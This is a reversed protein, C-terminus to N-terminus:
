SGADLFHAGAEESQYLNLSSLMSTPANTCAALLNSAAPASGFAGLLLASVGRCHAAHLPLKSM